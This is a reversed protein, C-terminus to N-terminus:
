RYRGRLVSLAETLFRNPRTGPHNVQKFAVVRGLRPWYFVLRPKVRARIVHPPTGEHHWLTIPDDSGVLVAPDGGVQGIRKVIHDRLTGPRRARHMASYADPPQYVGVRRQAERKVLEGAEMQDRLVPGSPSRMFDALKAPDIQVYSGFSGRAVM